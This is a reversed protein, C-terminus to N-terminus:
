LDPMSQLRGKASRKAKVRSDTKFKVIVQGPRYVPGANRDVRNVEDDNNNSVMQAQLPVACALLAVALMPKLLTKIKM